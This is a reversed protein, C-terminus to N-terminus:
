TVGESQYEKTGADYHIPRSIAGMSQREECDRMKGVTVVVLEDFRAKTVDAKKHQSSYDSDAQQWFTQGLSFAKHLADKVINEQKETNM